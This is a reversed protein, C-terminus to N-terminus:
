RKRSANRLRMYEDMNSANTLKKPGSGTHSTAVKPTSPPVFKPIERVQAQLAPQSAQPAPAPAQQTQRLSTLLMNELQKMELRPNASDAIDEVTDPNSALFRLMHPGIASLVLDHRVATPLSNLLGTRQVHEVVQPIDTLGSVKVNHDWVADLEEAENRQEQERATTQQSEIQRTLRDYQVMDNAYTEPDSYQNIDPKLNATQPVQIKAQIAQLQEKLERKQARQKRLDAYFGDVEKKHQERLEAETQKKTWEKLAKKYDARDEYSAEDPEDSDSSSAPTDSNPESADTAPIDTTTNATEVVPTEVVTQEAAMAERIGQTGM